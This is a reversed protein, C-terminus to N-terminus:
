FLKVTTLEKDFNRPVHLMTPEVYMCVYTCLRTKFKITCNLPWHLMAAILICVEHQFCTSAAAMDVYRGFMTGSGSSQVCSPIMLAACFASVQPVASSPMLPTEM